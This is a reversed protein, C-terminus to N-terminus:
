AEHLYEKLLQGTYSNKIELIEKTPGQFVLNGGASGGEPGLDLLYDCNKVVDFNHEIVVVTNGANVLNRLVKILKSVDHVHLGTTPEDLLYLTHMKISTYLEKALKVRQAEGGSLTPAQQGLEIYGLGVEQMTKLIRKVKWHNEFFVYAEDVSMKLVENIDRDKFKVSLTELNYRRGRCIDCVVYVDALFQMEVKIVGAGECNECRGGKVNFSFRGSKYGLSKAEKTSAFIDRILTFLGTYTAPNSRPTRGIPSQDMLVVRDIHEIGKYDELYGIRSKSNVGLRAELVPYITDLLLSSKGSGSVGTIGVMRDLPLRVNINKLNNEKCGEFEIFRTPTKEDIQIAIKKRGTLYDATLSEKCDKLGERDGSYLIRGGNKGALPGFDVIFDAAHLTEWDHEVVIVTNDLNRLKKLAELLKNVDRQHLGISPEDLVYTIGTLGTGIQSALRIRQAEGGSLTKAKRHITLYGLGVEVLFGLRASIEKLVSVAIQQERESLKPLLESFFKAADIISLNVVENMNREGLTVSLAEKKLRAGDCTECPVETMYKEIESRGYDLDNEFVKKEMEGIVGLWKEHISTQHGERNKGSVTYVKESGHLLLHRAELPLKGIPLSSSINNTELFTRFTRGFWSDAFLLRQFPFLGGEAISLSPNFVTEEKVKLVTGLGKCMECAGMPSNFSFLRPELEPFSLNCNPCSFRESFLEDEVKTPLDTLVFGADNILSFMCLGDSLILAQEVARFLRSFLEDSNKKYYAFDLSFKDVVLDITHKNNKLVYLDEDLGKFYGDIRIAAYGKARLNDFLDKFEGKRSKILPSLIMFRLPKNKDASFLTELRAQIQKVIETASMHKVERKCNPCHPHGVRAYLLRLYDYIETVTGVTSRPNHSATKQDISIAPSLGDIKEVDPKEMVGLFQRAYSSLSEVYRRQGEAYITDFALSSKGSGSVGSFLVLKHKPITLDVNKLNHVKAGKIIISEM